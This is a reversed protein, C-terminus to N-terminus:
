YMESSLCGDRECGRLYQAQRIGFAYILTRIYRRKTASESVNKGQARWAEDARVRKVVHVM